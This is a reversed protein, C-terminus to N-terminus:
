GGIFKGNAMHCRVGSRWSTIDTNGPNYIMLFTGIFIVPLLLMLIYLIAYRIGPRHKRLIMLLGAAMLALLGGQWLSHFLTWAFARIFEASVLSEILNM